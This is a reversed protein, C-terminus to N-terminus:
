IQTRAALLVSSVTIFKKSFLTRGFPLPFQLSVLARSSLPLFPGLEQAEGRYVEVITEPLTAKNEDGFRFTAPTHHCPVACLNREKPTRM